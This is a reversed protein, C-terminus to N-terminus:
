LLVNNRQVPTDYENEYHYNMENYEDMWEFYEIISKMKGFNQHIKKMWNKM